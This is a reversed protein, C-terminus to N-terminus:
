HLTNLKEVPATYFLDSSTIIAHTKLPNLSSKKQKISSSTSDVYETTALSYPTKQFNMIIWYPM